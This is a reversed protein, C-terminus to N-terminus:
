VQVISLVLPKRTTEDTKQDTLFVGRKGKRQGTLLVDKRGRRQSILPVERKGSKLGILHGDRRGNRLDRLAGKKNKKKGALVERGGKRLGRQLDDRKSEKTSILLVDRKGKLVETEGEKRDTLVESKRKWLDTLLVERKGSRLGTLHVGRM